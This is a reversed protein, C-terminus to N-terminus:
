ESMYLVNLHGMFWRYKMTVDPPIIDKAFSLFWGLPEKNVPFVWANAHTYSGRVEVFVSVRRIYKFIIM